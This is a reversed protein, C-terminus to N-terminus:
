KGELAARAVNKIEKVGVFWQGSAAVPHDIILQLAERLREIELLAAGEAAIRNVNEDYQRDREGRLREIEDNGALHNAKWFESTQRSQKIEERLRKNDELLLECEESDSWVALKLHERLREIEDAADLPAENYYADDDFQKNVVRWEYPTRLREVIDM